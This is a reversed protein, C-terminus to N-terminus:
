AMGLDAAGLAGAGAGPWQQGLGKCSISLYLESETETPDSPGPINLNNGSLLGPRVKYPYILEKPGWLTIYM